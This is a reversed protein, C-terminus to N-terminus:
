LESSGIIWPLSERWASRTGFLVKALEAFEAQDLCGDGDADYKVCMQPSPPQHTINPPTNAPTHRHLWCLGGVWCGGV